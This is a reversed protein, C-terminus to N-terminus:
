PTFSAIADRYLSADGTKGAAEARAAMRELVTRARAALESRREDSADDLRGALLAVLEHGRDLAELLAVLEEALADDGPADRLRRTLEDARATRAVDQDDM